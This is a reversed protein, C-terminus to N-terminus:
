LYLIYEIPCVEAGPAQQMQGQGPSTQAEFGNDYGNDDMGPM